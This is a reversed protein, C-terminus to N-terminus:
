VKQVSYARSVCPACISVFACCENVYFLYAKSFFFSFNGPAQGFNAMPLFRQGAGFLVKTRSIRRATAEPGNERRNEQNTEWGELDKRLVASRM